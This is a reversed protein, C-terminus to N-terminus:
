SQRSARRRWGFLLAGAAMILLGFGLLAESVSQAGTFALPAKPTVAPAPTAPQQVATALVKTITTNVQATVPPTENSKGTAVNVISDPADSNVKVQFVMTQSGGVALNGVTWTLTKGSQTAAPTASGAVYTTGTPIDDSVSVGTLPDKGTNFVKITYTLTDGVSASTKDVSKTIAMDFQKNPVITDASDNVPPTENSDAIAVNHILSPADSNIKVQFSVTYSQGAALVGNNPLDWRLNSGTLVGGKDASGNVYTTGSPITDTIFVGTLDGVGTNTVTMSYTLTDGRSANAKDVSKKITMSAPATKVTSTDQATATNTPVGVQHGNVVVTDVVSTNVPPAIGDFTCTVSAGAALEPGLLSGCVGGPAAGDFADTLSSLIIPVASTNTIVAKYHVPKGATPATESDTFTGDNNGDNTKDVKITINPKETVTSTEGTDGCKGTAAANTNDGSYAAIWKYTGAATPTFTVPGYNGNGHDVNVAASTFVKTTCNADSYATFTITGTGNVTGSLTASDSIASGLTADTALTAIASSNLIKPAFCYGANTAPNFDNTKISNDGNQSPNLDSQNNIQGPKGHLDYMNVCLNAPITQGASYTHDATWPGQPFGQADVQKCPDTFQDVGDMATGVHFFLNTNKIALSPSPSSSTNVGNWDVAWGVGFRSSCSSQTSSGSLQGWNWTGGVTVKVTGSVVKISGDPNTLVTGSIVGTGKSDPLPNAANAFAVSVTAMMVAFITAVAAAVRSRRRTCLRPIIGRIM